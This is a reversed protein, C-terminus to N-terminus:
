FGLDLLVSRRGLQEAAWGTTGRGSFPDCVLENPWTSLRIARAPVEIPFAAPWNNPDPVRRGDTKNAPSITWVNRVLDVWDGGLGVRPDKWGKVLVGGMKRGKFVPPCERKWEGKYYLLILESSGRLNPASPTLWSGWACQGDFNDQVWVITDRYAFGAASLAEMWLHALNVREGGVEGVVMPVTQQVNLWVRGGATAIRYMEKAWLRAKAAYVIWPLHDAYGSPYNPIAVNDILPRRLM